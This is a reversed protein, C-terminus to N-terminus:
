LVSEIVKLIKQKFIPKDFRMANNILIQKDYNFKDFLKIADTLAKETQEYFFLATGNRNDKNWQIMTTKVGGFGYCIVPTGCANAELPVLGFDEKQPLIVAICRKYHEILNEDSVNDLFEINNNAMMKLEKEITGRGIIVLPLNTKNFSKIVVDIRKYRELRSVVLFYNKKTEGVGYKSCDIPPYIIESDRGYYNNIRDHMEQNMTVFKDVKLSTSYDWKRFVPLFPKVLNLKFNTKENAMYSNTDWLLRFPTYCYCIHKSKNKNIYKASFTSSSLIIDCEEIKMRGMLLNALPFLSKLQSENKVIKQLPTTKINKGIFFPYTKEPFYVSTYIPANPFIEVFNQFVWEAGGLNVLADHVLAIKM